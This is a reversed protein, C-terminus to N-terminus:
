PKPFHHKPTSKFNTGTSSEAAVEAAAQLVNFKGEPVLHFVGLLYEGNRPDPLQLNVYAQQKPNLSTILNEDISTMNIVVISM